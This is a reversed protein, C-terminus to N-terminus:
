DDGGSGTMVVNRNFFGYMLRAAEGGVLPELEKSSMNAVQRVNETEHVVTWINKPTVGPVNALMDQPDQNFIQGEGGGGGGGSSKELGARVAAIPDPEEEQKKLSEFIEATQYPSSSWIIRLKPFALTLLVIKSQLDSSVNSPAVSSLSGSLDAFPELTFSKNQDFEILLMPNRYHQFMTEAQNYLRGDRFSSILDSVSKREVCINPSLVYDAVTLMCPVIVINRGHLLSPLSSRFERVDVVVRPPEATAALRGGGAIRTNITRLFAEQPDESGPDVTMVLSMSAREKILKTFSDKERRVASLYRQEEVSGGYYMFYVRVNRDSHSSRYVEVRRIFAADPEYMIIYRPRVEELVHEDQDGEYAHVIVLDKMEYLQYYEEMDNLTDVVVDAREEAEEETVPVESMLEAMQGPQEFYQAISGNDTRGASAGVNGGGRVRRRKNAPARSSKSALRPDTAGNLAKQNEHFLAVNVQAFQKKWRLYNRLKRRMMFNASPRYREEAEEDPDIATTSGGETRPKIHMTQLYDRLQRCIDTDSCMILITGNSDDRIPPEFYLDRDIEELVEALVGWKPLEELVPRLADINGDSSSAAHRGAAAYVRKRATAFITEAADLFLWPSATQRTSGPAPAHAAHITDLHQLFSVSDFSLLSHLMGRLVTLDNVIQRTKWSIRHWNPELQRRVIVDFNKLLANDINWDDMELGTNGKKLEQISIEVCELIANQIDTMAETMPVELEIVEAKKKRAELSQAVTVHFRPWLSAKRLFLNRMMTALPSFGTAFPDPNDSFAKLFGAKNKQRYIRLIFAELSTAVVKDAHLVIVGTVSEPVLLGTLLDVVLIRSTISFIGGKSYMKERAGVSTFDTNVVTLGRAKPAMSVAAHEALAEGIWGNERDTAGVILILNNGAVDYSHLLNTVLRMLGLGRAIVVLEDEARLEQFLIQQYELPLSLKVPQPAGTLTAM